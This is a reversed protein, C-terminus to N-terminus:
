CVHFLRDEFESVTQEGFVLHAGDLAAGLGIAIAVPRREVHVKGIAPVAPLVATAIEVEPCRVARVLRHDMGFAENYGVSVTLFVALQKDHKVLILVCM